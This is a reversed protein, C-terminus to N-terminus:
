CKLNQFCNRRDDRCLGIKNNGFKKGLINLVYLRVFECVDAGDFSAM